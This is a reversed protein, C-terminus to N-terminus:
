KGLIDPSFVATLEMTHQHTETRLVTTISGGRYSPPLVLSLGDGTLTVWNSTDIDLYQVGSLRADMMESQAQAARTSPLVTLTSQPSATIPQRAFYVAALAALGLLAIVLIAALRRM